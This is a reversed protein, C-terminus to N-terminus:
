KNSNIDTFIATWGKNKSAKHLLIFTKSCCDVTCWDTAHWLLIYNSAMKQEESVEFDNYFTNNQRKKVFKHIVINFKCKTSSKSTKM